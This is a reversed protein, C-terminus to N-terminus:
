IVEEDGRAGAVGLGKAVPLELLRQLSFGFFSFWLWDNLYQCAEPLGSKLNAM